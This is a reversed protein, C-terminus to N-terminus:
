PPSAGQTKTATAEVPDIGRHRKREEASSQLRVEELHAELALLEDGNSSPAQQQLGQQQKGYTASGIQQLIEMQKSVASDIRDVKESTAKSHDEINKIRQDPIM